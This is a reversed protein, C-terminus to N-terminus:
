SRQCLGISFLSFNIAASACLIQRQSKVNDVVFKLLKKKQYCAGRFVYRFWADMGRSIKEGFERRRIGKDVTENEALGEHIHIQSRVLQTWCAVLKSHPSRRQGRGM